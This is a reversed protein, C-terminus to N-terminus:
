LGPRDTGRPDRSGERERLRRLLEAPTIVPPTPSVLGTLHPDGSVLYDAKAARALAVLYDDDPDPTLPSTREPDGHREGSDAVLEVFRRAREITLYGRFKPRLLVDQLESLLAPSIILVHGQALVLRLL